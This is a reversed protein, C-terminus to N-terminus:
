YIYISLINIIIRHERHVLPSCVGGLSAVQAGLVWGRANRAGRTVEAQTGPKLCGVGVSPSSGTIYLRQARHNPGLHRWLGNGSENEDPALTELRAPHQWRWIEMGCHRDDCRWSSTRSWEPAALRAGDSDSDYRVAGTMASENQAAEVGIQNAGCKGLTGIFSGASTRWRRAPEEVSGVQDESSLGLDVWGLDQSSTSAYNSSLDLTV